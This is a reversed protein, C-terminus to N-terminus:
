ALIAQFVTEGKRNLLLVISAKGFTGGSFIKNKKFVPHNTM